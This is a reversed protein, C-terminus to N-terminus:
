EAMERSGSGRGPDGAAADTGDPDAGGVGVSAGGAAAVQPTPAGAPVAEGGRGLLKGILEMSRRKNAEVIGEPHRAFTMAGVGFLIFQYSLSVGFTELIVPFLVFAMGANVAGEVTRAGLTVVIVVWFIGLLAPFDEANVTQQMTALLGGGLGAIGASLAFVTVRARNPNIGIATAAVESGRLADLARGTTGRRIFVVAFAVLAFVAFILLFFAKDDSFDIGLLYPRPVDLGELSNSVSELPFVVNEVMLAFALTFLTLYIGGLRLAPVAVLGGIAAAVAAGIVAALLVSVDWRDVLNATTYAGFGAFSIQALSIQGSYGTLVTISLFTITFILGLTLRFLWLDSLMFVAVALFGAVFVPFAFRRFRAIAPPASAAALAPPPPDVGKLPDTIERRGRLGPILLLALVVMVFPFSPRLGQALISDLPLYGALIQQAVGLVLGGVLTLPISTLGGFAAAAIAAVILITFNNADLTAFLPALLVGALGALFSSLMWASMSVREADIGALELMRPSEVVARMRLGLATYRFLVGLGVVIVLTALTAALNKAPIFYEGFRYVRDPDPWLVPPRFEQKSGFWLKVIEPLAVLLGLSAILKVQWGATRMHRFLLRELVLGLLPAVVFVSLGVAPVIPWDHRVHTDYLVAASVFAQAGFALNFVGSTKYTLVLGTAVLAYVCGLPIGPITYRVFDSM